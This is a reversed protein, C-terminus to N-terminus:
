LIIIYYNLMLDNYSEYFLVLKKNAFKKILAM